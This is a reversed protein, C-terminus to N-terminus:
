DQSYHEFAHAVADRSLFYSKALLLIPVSIGVVSGDYEFPYKPHPPFCTITMPALELPPIPPLYENPLHQHTPRIWIKSFYLKEFETTAMIWRDSRDRRGFIGVIAGDCYCYGCKMSDIKRAFVGYGSSDGSVSSRLM